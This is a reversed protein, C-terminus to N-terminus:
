TMIETTWLINEHPYRVTTWSLTNFHKNIWVLGIIGNQAGGNKLKWELIISDGKSLIWEV